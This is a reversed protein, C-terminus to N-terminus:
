FHILSMYDYIPHIPWLTSKQWYDRTGCGSFIGMYILIGIWQKLEGKSVKKWIRGLQEWAKDGSNADKYKAYNNTHQVLLDM